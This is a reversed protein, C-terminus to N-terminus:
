GVSLVVDDHLVRPALVPSLLPEDPYLPAGPFRLADTSDVRHSGVRDFIRCVPPRLKTVLRTIRVFADNSLEVHQDITVRHRAM